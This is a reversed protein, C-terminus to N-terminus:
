DGASADQGNLKGILDPKKDTRAMVIGRAKCIKRLETIPLENLPMGSRAKETEWQAMLIDDATVERSEEAAAESQPVNGNVMQLWEDYAPTNSRHQGLGRETISKAQVGHKRLIRVMLDKSMRPDIEEIGKYKAWYECEKRSLKALADRPDDIRNLQM